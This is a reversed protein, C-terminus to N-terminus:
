NQYRIMVIVQKRLAICKRDKHELWSENYHIRKRCHGLYWGSLERHSNMKGSM